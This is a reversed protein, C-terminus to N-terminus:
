YSSYYYWKHSPYVHRAVVESNVIEHVVIAVLDGGHPLPCFTLQHLMSINSIINANDLFSASYLFAALLIGNGVFLM